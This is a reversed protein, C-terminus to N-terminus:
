QGDYACEEEDAPEEEGGGNRNQAMYLRYYLGKLEMLQEHTGREVIRGNDMYIIEDAFSVTSVRHSIIIGTRDRLIQRMNGIIEEETKTDVASLSDDLILIRPNKVLARAISIRQKQGGSLTAGREGVMTDFGDPFSMVSEYIGSLRAAEEVEDDSYIGKFFEINNRITTSFLFSDQPVCGISDRIVDTPIENIDRGDIFIKGDDVEYLKLLLNTLTTKGCGTKGLIGLTKGRELTLNINKLARAASGPYTFSLNRIEIRGGLLNAGDDTGTGNGDIGPRGECSTNEFGAGETGPTDFIVRLRKYSAIGRQWIDIIRSINMVPAMIAMMYTNFAVYDGLSIDGAIVRGSGYVIFLLFSVGFCLQACPALLASVRTLSMQTDVRNRSYKLFREM